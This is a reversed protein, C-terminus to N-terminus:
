GRVVQGQLLQAQLEVGWLLQLRDTVEQQRARAHEGPDVVGSHATLSRRSGHIEGSITLARAEEQNSQIRRSLILRGTIQRALHYSPSM